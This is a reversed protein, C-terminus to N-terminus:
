KKNLNELKKKRLYREIDKIDLEDLIEETTKNRKIHSNEWDNDGWQKSLEKNLNNIQM